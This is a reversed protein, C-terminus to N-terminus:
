KKKGWGCAHVGTANHEKVQAITELTDRRSWRVPRAADCFALAAGPSIADSATMTRCGTVTTASLLLALLMVSRTRKASLTM